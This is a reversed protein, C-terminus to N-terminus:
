TVMFHRLDHLPFRGVGSRRLHRIFQKTVRNPLWAVSGECEPSFVFATDALAVGSSRARAGARRRHEILRQMTVEDIVVRCTCHTKTARLV